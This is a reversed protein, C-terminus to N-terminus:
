KHELLCSGSKNFLVKESAREGLIVGRDLDQIAGAVIESASASRNDVLVALPLEPFLTKGTKYYVDQIKGSRGRTSVITDKTDSFLKCNGAAM